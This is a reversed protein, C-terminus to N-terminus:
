YAWNASCEVLSAHMTVSYMYKCVDIMNEVRRVRVTAGGDEDDKRRRLTSKRRLVSNMTRRVGRRSATIRQKEFRGDVDIHDPAGVVFIFNIFEQVIKNTATEEVVPTFYNRPLYVLLKGDSVPV